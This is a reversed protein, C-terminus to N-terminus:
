NDDDNEEKKYSWNLLVNRYCVQKNNENVNYREKYYMRLSPNTEIEEILKKYNYTRKEKKPLDNYFDSNIFTAYVDKLKLVKNDEKPYQQYENSFWGYLEDSDDMYKKAAKKCSEPIKGLEFGNERYIKFREILLSMLEQKYEDMFENTTYYKSGVYINKVDPDYDKIDEKSRFLSRFPIVLLRRKMSEGGKDLKPLTNCLVLHTGQLNVNTNNSWLGRKSISDGGTLEKVQATKITTKADPENYTILRKRNMNATGVCKTDKSIETIVNTPAKYYLDKLTKRLIYNVLTDKGNGGAGTLFVIKDLTVGYLGTALILLLLDLEEKEPMIQKLFIMLQERKYPDTFRFDYDMGAFLIYDNYRGDRFEDTHLDYVGNTFGVLNINTDFPNDLRAIKEKIDDIYSNRCKVMKLAKMIALTKSELNKQVRIAMEIDEYEDKDQKKDLTDLKAELKERNEKYKNKYPIFTNVFSLLTNALEPKHSKVWYHEKFQFFMDEYYIFQNPCKKLFYLGFDTDCLESYILEEEDTKEIVKLQFMSTDIGYQDCLERLRNFKVKHERQDNFSRIKNNVERYNYKEICLASFMHILHDRQPHNEFINYICMSTTLWDEYSGSALPGLTEIFDMWQDLNLNYYLGIEDDKYDDDPMMKIEDPNEPPPTLRFMKYIDQKIEHQINNFDLTVVPFDNMLEYILNKYLCIGNKEFCKKCKPKDPVCGSYISKPAVVYGGKRKLDIHIFRDRDEYKGHMSEPQNLMKFYCHYGGSPTKVVKTHSICWDIFSKFHTHSTYLHGDEGMKIDFDIVLTNEDLILGLGYIRENNELLHDINQKLEERSKDKWSVGTVPCKNQQLPVYIDNPNNIFITNILDNSMM